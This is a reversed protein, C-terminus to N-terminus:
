GSYSCSRRWAMRTVMSRHLLVATRTPSCTQHKIVEINKFSKGPLVGCLSGWSRNFSKVDDILGIIQASIERGMNGRQVKQVKGQFDCSAALIISNQDRKGDLIEPSLIHYKEKINPDNELRTGCYRFRKCSFSMAARM